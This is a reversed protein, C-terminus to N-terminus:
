LDYLGMEQSLQAMEALAEEREKKRKEKYALIDRIHVRRHAGVSTFPIQGEELLKVLYPRSVHLIDAAQQTTLIPGMGEIFVTRDHAMQALIQQLVQVIARPLEVPEQADGILLSTRPTDALRRAIEELAPQEDPLLPEHKVIQMMHKGKGPKDM